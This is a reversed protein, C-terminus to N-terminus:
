IEPSFARTQRRARRWGPYHRLKWDFMAWEYGIDRGAKQSEYYKHRLIEEQEAKFERYLPSQKVLEHASLPERTESLSIRAVNVNV